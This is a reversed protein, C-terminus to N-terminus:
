TTQPAEYSVNYEIWRIYVSTRSGGNSIFSDIECLSWLKTDPNQQRIKISHTEQTKTYVIEDIVTRSSVATGDFYQVEVTGSNYISTRRMDTLASAGTTKPAISM